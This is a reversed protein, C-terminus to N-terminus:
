RQVSTAPAVASESLLEEVLVRFIDGTAVECVNETSDSMTCCDRTASVCSEVSLPVVKLCQVGAAQCDSTVQRKAAAPQAPDPLTGLKTPSMDSRCVPDLALDFEPYTASRVCCNSLM